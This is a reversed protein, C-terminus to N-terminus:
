RPFCGSLCSVYKVNEPRSIEIIEEGGDQSDGLLKIYPSYELCGLNKYYVKGEKDDNNVYFCYLDLDSNTQWVLSAKVKSGKSLNITTKEGSKKLNVTSKLLDIKKNEPKLSHTSQNQLNNTSIKKEACVDQKPTEDDIDVGYSTALPALGYISEEIIALWTKM